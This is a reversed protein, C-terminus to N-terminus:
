YNFLQCERQKNRIQRIWQFYEVEHMIIELVITNTLVANTIYDTHQVGPNRVWSQSTNTIETIIIKLLWVLASSKFGTLKFYIHFRVKNCVAEVRAGDIGKSSKLNVLVLHNDTGGSVLDYNKSLLASAMAKANSMVQLQYQKFESSM